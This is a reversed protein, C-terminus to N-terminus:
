PSRPKMNSQYAMLSRGREEYGKSGVEPTKNETEAIKEGLQRMEERVNHTAERGIEGMRQRVLVAGDTGIPVEGLSGTRCYWNEEVTM